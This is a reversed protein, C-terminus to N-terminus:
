FGFGVGSLLTGGWFGGRCNGCRGRGALGERWPRERGGSPWSGAGAAQRKRGALGVAWRDKNMMDLDSTEM